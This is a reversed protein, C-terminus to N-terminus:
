SSRSARIPKVGKSGFYLNYAMFSSLLLLIVTIIKIADSM